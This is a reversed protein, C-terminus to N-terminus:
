APVLLADLETHLRSLRQEGLRLGPYKALERTIAASINEAILDARYEDQVDQPDHRAAANRVQMRAAFVAPPPCFKRRETNPMPM